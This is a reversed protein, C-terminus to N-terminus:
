RGQLCWTRMDQDIVEGQKSFPIQLNAQRRQQMMAASVAAIQQDTIPSSMVHHSHRGLELSGLFGDRLSQCSRFVEDAGSLTHSPKQNVPIGILSLSITKSTIRHGACACVQGGECIIDRGELGQIVCHNAQDLGSVM